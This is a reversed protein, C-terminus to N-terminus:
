AASFYDPRQRTAPRRQRHCDRDGFRVTAAPKSGPEGQAGAQM